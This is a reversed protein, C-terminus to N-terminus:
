IGTFNAGDRIEEWFTIWERLEVTGMLAKGYVKEADCPEASM